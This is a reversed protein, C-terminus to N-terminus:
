FLPSKLGRVAHAIRSQNGAPSLIRTCKLGRVAHAIRRQPRYLPHLLIIM